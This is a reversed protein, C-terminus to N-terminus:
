LKHSNHPNHSDHLHPLVAREESKASKVSQISKIPGCVVGIKFEAKNETIYTQDKIFEDWAIISKRDVSNPERYESFLVEIYHEKHVHANKETADRAYDRLFVRLKNITLQNAQTQDEQKLTFVIEDPTTSRDIIIDWSTTCFQQTKHIPFTETDQPNTVDFIVLEEKEKNSTIATFFIFYFLM